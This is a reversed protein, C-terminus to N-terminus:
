TKAMGLEWVFLNNISDSDEKQEFLFINWENSPICKDMISITNSYHSHNTLYVCWNWASHMQDSLVQFPQM